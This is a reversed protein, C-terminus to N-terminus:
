FTQLQKLIDKLKVFRVFGNRVIHVTKMRFFVDVEELSNSRMVDLAKGLAQTVEVDTIIPLFNSEWKWWDVAYQRYTKIKWDQRQHDTQSRNWTCRLM